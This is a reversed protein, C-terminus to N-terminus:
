PKEKMMERVQNYAQICTNLKRVTADADDGIALIDKATEPQLEATGTDTGSAPATDTATHVPCVTPKVPIRLRYAGSDIDANRKTIQIKADNNAKVLQTAQSHVADVLAQEKQKAEANLKAIEIQQKENEAEGGKYFGATFSGFLALVFALAVYPNM